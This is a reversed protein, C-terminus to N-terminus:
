RVKLAQPTRLLPHCPLCLVTARLGYRLDETQLPLGGPVGRSCLPLCSIPGLRRQDNWCEIPDCCV